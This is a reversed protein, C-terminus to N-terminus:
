AEDAEHLESKVHRSPLLGEPKIRMMVILATGFVLAKWNNPSSFVSQGSILNYSTLFSSIKVLIISNFGIMVLSGLLVGQISGLGGVIVICLAIISLQFDYNSPEGTSGLSSAWLAGSLSCLAAGIAFALLKNRVANIGMCRSAIEDERISIWARGLRSNKLNFNFWVVLSLLFLYLYYSPLYNEVAFTIGPFSPPPVPNIGQTGKSIVDLNKLADQTIEGFGLTVIAVYDGRLRITPLGLLVGALAGAFLTLLCATWFGFQFPYIDCTLIAYCYAGIAMFAASGLNLMGTFGSVINLGLGLIAMIFIPRMLDAIRYERPLAIDLLPLVLALLLMIWHSRSAIALDTGRTM